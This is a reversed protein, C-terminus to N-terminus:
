RSRVRDKGPVVAERNSVVQALNGAAMRQFEASQDFLAVFALVELAIRVRLPQDSEVVPVSGARAVIPAIQQDTLEGVHLM